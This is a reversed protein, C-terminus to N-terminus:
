IPKDKFGLLFGLYSVIFHMVFYILIVFAYQDLSFRVIPMSILIAGVVYDIQDFFLWSEGSKIGIQRKFFSEIADGFLAGFGLLSGLIFNQKVLISPMYLSRIFFAYIILAVIGGAVMGTLLGRWSKHPGFIRQGRFKKGFDM